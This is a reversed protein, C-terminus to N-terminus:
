AGTIHESFLWYALAVTFSFAPFGLLTLADIQHAYCPNSEVKKYQILVLLSFRRWLKQSPWIVAKIGCLHEQANTHVPWRWHESEDNQKLHIDCPRPLSVKIDNKVSWCSGTTKKGTERFYYQQFLWWHSHKGREARICTWNDKKRSLLLRM